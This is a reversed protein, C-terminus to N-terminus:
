VCPVEITRPFAEMHTGPLPTYHLRVPPTVTRPDVGLERLLPAGDCLAYRTVAQFMPRLHPVTVLVPGYALAAGYINRRNYPGRMRRYVEPTLGQTHPEGRPDAWSLHFRTAYMEFGRVASFVRPAPSATTAAGLGKVLQGVTPFGIARLLDGSMQLVGILLLALAVRNM